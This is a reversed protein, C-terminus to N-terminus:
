ARPHAQRHSRRLREVSVHTYIQTTSLTAHGLLEQVSRLDAGGDLMHTAAAHRLGHPSTAPAGPVSAVSRNVVDRVQRQDVRGGRRGLFLAGGSQPGVLAPRGHTLWDRLADRAPIGFPVVRQRGGKGLVMATREDPDVDLLDLGTLEAVRCGTAYLFELLAVDRVAIPDDDPASDGRAGVDRRSNAADLVAVVQSAGLVRPLSGARKPAQLRLGVDVTVRGTRAAWATFTRVAAARRALTSRAHDEAAAALWVRLDALGLLALDLSGDRDAPVGRELLDRVDGVYARVTHVSRNLEASLYTAFATLLQELSERPTSTM